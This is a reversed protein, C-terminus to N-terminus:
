IHAWILPRCYRFRLSGYRARSGYLLCVSLIQAGGACRRLSPVELHVVNKFFTITLPLLWYWPIQRLMPQGIIARGVVEMTVAVWFCKFAAILWGGHYRLDDGRGIM